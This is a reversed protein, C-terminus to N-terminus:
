RPMAANNIACRANAQNVHRDGARTFRAFRVATNPIIIKLMNQM